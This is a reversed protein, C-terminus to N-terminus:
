KRVGELYFESAPSDTSPTKGESTYPTIDDVIMDGLDGDFFVVKVDGYEKKLEQLELIVESALM